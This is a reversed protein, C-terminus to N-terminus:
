FVGLAGTDLESIRKLAKDMAERVNTHNAPGSLRKSAMLFTLIKGACALQVIVNLLPRSVCDRSEDVILSIHRGRIIERLLTLHLSFVAPVYTDRVADGKPLLGSCRTLSKVNQRTAAPFENMVPDLAGSDFMSPLPTGTFVAVKTWALILRAAAQKGDSAKQWADKLSVQREKCAKRAIHEKTLVHEHAKSVILGMDAVIRGPKPDMPDKRPDKAEYCLRCAYIAKKLTPIYDWTGDPCPTDYLQELTRGPRGAKRKKPAPCEADDSLVQAPSGQEDVEACIDESHGADAPGPGDPEMTSSWGEMKRKKLLRCKLIHM